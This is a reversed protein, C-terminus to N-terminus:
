ENLTLIQVKNLGVERCLDWLEVLRGVSAHRDARILVPRDSQLGALRSRLEKLTVVANNFYVVHERTLTIALDADTAEQTATAKPLQVAIGQQLLPAAVMFIILMVLTVDVMPTVNIEAMPGRFREARM